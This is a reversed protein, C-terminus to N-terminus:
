EVWINIYDEQSFALHPELVRLVLAGVGSDSMICQPMKQSNAHVLRYTRNDTQM